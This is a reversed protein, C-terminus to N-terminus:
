SASRRADLYRDLGLVLSSLLALCLGVTWFLTQYGSGRAIFGLLPGGVLAGLDIFSTLLSVQQSRRHRGARAVAMANLVPFGYGHGTGALLGAALLGLPGRVHPILM